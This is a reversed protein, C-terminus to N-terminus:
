RKIIKNLIIVLRLFISNTLLDEAIQKITKDEKVVGYYRYYNGIKRKIDFPYYKSQNRIYILYGIPNKLYLSYAKNTYGDELYDGKAIVDNFWRIKYGKYAIEDWVVCETVFKENKVEPFQYKKFLDTYYIEAKDGLLDNKERELNTCDVYKNKNYTGIIKNNTYGRLGAVGAYNTKKQISREYCIINEIADDLLFDDSDLIFFMKGKAVNLGVNVAKQKGGNQVKIYNIKFNNKENLWKKFLEETNDSSGDDVVVWEFEKCTQRKLSEYLKDLIYARNYTPTFVTCFIEYNKNLDLNNNVLDNFGNITDKIDFRNQGRKSKEKLEKILKKDSIVKSLANYIAETNKEILMGYKDNDLIEKPGDTNTSIVPLGLTLAEAVVLSFGEIDSTSIFVDAQKLYNYPNEKFGLLKIYGELNNNKIYKEINNRESGDGILWLEINKYKDKLLNIAECLKHYGKVKELRGISIIVFKNNDKKLDCKISALKLIKSKDIPNYITATKQYLKTVENFSDKINNSVCIIKDFINYGKVLQKYDNFMQYNKETAFINTHIWAIKYANSSSGCLIKTSLLEHFAIEVDYNKNICLQYMLKKPLYKVMRYFIRKNWINPKKIITSYHIHKSLKSIYIGENYITKIYIEYNEDMLNDTLDVIAKEIGGNDLSDVLFLIKKKDNTKFDVLENIMSITNWFIFTFFLSCFYMINSDFLNITLLACLLSFYITVLKFITANSTDKDDYFKLLEIINKILIVAIYIIFIILAIIGHSVLVQMFINHMNESLKPSLKLTESSMHENAFSNVNKVGVGFMPHNLFVKFGANWLEFRGNSTDSTNYERDVTIKDDSIITDNDTVPTRNGIDININYNINANKLSDAGKVMIKKSLFASSGIIFGIIVLALGISFVNRWISNWVSENDKKKKFAIMLISFIAVSVIIGILSSRSNSLILCIFELIINIYLFAKSIKKNKNIMLLLISMWISVLAFHGLSNPNGQIGYLRGEFVGFLVQQFGDAYSIKINLLFIIISIISSIFTLIVTIYNYIKQKKITKEFDNNKNYSVLLVMQVCLYLVSIINTIFNNKYNVFCGIFSVLLFLFLLYDSKKLTYKKNYFYNFVFIIIGWIIFIKFFKSFFDNTFPICYFFSSILFVLKYFSIDMLKEIVKNILKM